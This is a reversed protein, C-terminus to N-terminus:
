STRIKGYHKWDAPIVARGRRDAELRRPYVIRYHNEGGPHLEMAVGERSSKKSTFAGPLQAAM